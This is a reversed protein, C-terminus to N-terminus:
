LVSLKLEFHIGPTGTMVNDVTESLDLVLNLNQAISVDRGDRSSAGNSPFGSVSTISHNVAKSLANPTCRWAM